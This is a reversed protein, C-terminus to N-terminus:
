VRGASNRPQSTGSTSREPFWARISPQRASCLRARLMAHAVDVVPRLVAPLRRGRRSSPADGERAAPQAPARRPARGGARRCRVPAPASSAGRATREGGAPRRRRRHAGDASSSRPQGASGVSGCYGNGYAAARAAVGGGGARARQPVRAVRDVPQRAAQGVRPPDRDVPDDRDDARDRDHQEDLREDDVRVPDRRRRHLRRQVAGPGRGAALRAEGVPHERVPEEVM